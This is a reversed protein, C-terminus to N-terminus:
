EEEDSEVIIKKKETKPKVKRSTKKKEVLATEQIEDVAETAGVLLLKKTLKRVKPQLKKEENKSVEVARHTDKNNKGIDAEQYEGLEIEIKETNVERIKKYVFYRNLFSIKKEFSTMKFASGYDREKYKNIKIAEQMNVFLESFMGSGEPLGLTKAEERDIIKFGYLEFIRNLYDFNVLFEGISQNISEQYVDIKYGICSSDDEFNDAGYGKTIEWIKKGGEVIQISEGTKTKKLMNYVQKGDYATGIFYGNLATCEAVNRLFGQLSDPNEFFYHLAFQCSSVNFGEEGVGYQRSVGKGIKDAEKPGNGFVAATIQKAKDNLMADGKRINYESRGNVFLCYPMNKNIKKSNLFRVCAGNLRNELNDKSIDIGFVFSLRSGIWKPLDGAKGCAYDILTDGQKSVSNILLRKVYLNHFDKMSQTAMKGSPTNYYVDESVLVSPINSGSCIMDETVPYNISKWNNNAVRFANGYQPEGRRYESTKDHRVRLPVWRWGEHLDFDYSFEVVTNDTFVENEESFMQKVGSDDVRLMIKCLGANIDYPETPYFRRPVYDNSYKESKQKFEPLKDDIVDQCPNIYGDNTESFGCRLELMKYESLQTSLSSNIGDEFIPKIEDDGNIKKVTTVLFDITNFKPPKWKFSYDWGKKTKLGAVGIKDSGVGYFAHTFILGDTEYEFRNERVKTLIQNCGSFITDKSSSPYFEKTTIRIPSIINKSGINKEIIGKITGKDKVNIDMISVPNLSNITSKLLYYRSKNIDAEKESSMFTFHRVDVKKLYYIDFAAYLNIFVGLKNRSILEGDIITNFTESNQTKAGTFIVDMNTNILYIKGVNNIIMLHRDGDAKETVVFDKRINIENINEELPAINVRQLTSSNPGIFNKNKIKQTAQFEDGYVIKMYSALVEKQEPYSVPYNTGQLGGLVFKIVKRLSELILKPSNFPTGPGIQTNNVEIEIQYIEPNNFVNSEQTTYVRKMQHESREGEMINGNKVISIDVNFPYDPHAFTVRNLYRFIKKSKKWAEIIYSRIGRKVPEETSYSVRFNFDYFDVPFIRQKDGDIGIRKHEFTVSTYNNKIIESIDNNTCYEQINHLGNIQTRIDSLKFKGSISDLYECNIRLYYSGVSDTTTFGCSKLKKIVNDYDNRTLPKIGKTGFKVELENNKEDISSLFPNKSYFQKMINEFKIQPPTKKDKDESIHVREELLEQPVAKDIKSVPTTNSVIKQAPLPLPFSSPLPLPIAEPTHPSMIKQTPSLPPPAAEPTHPSMIKQTPSVDATKLPLKTKAKNKKIIDKLFLYKDRPGFSELQKQQKPPLSDFYDNLEKNSMDKLVGAKIEKSKYKELKKKNETDLNKYFENLGYDGFDISELEEDLSQYLSKEITTM